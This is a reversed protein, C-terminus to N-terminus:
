LDRDISALIAEEASVGNRAPRPPPENVIGGTEVSQDISDLALLIQVFVSAAWVLFRGAVAGVFGGVLVSVASFWVLVGRLAPDALMLWLLGCFLIPVLISAFWISSALWLMVGAQRDAIARTRESTYVVRGRM